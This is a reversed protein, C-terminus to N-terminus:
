PSATAAPAASPAPTGFNFNVAPATEAGQKAEFFPKPSFGFM